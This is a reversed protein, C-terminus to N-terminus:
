PMTKNPNANLENVYEFITKQKGQYISNCSDIVRDAWYGNFLRDNAFHRAQCNTTVRKATDYQVPVITMLVPSTIGISKFNNFAVLPGVGRSEARQTCLTVEDTTDYQNEIMYSFESFTVESNGGRQTFIVLRKNNSRMWGLTPWQNAILDSPKLLVDYQAIAMTDKIEKITILRDAYNEIIITIVAQPNARMFEVVRYLEYKFSQYENTGKQVLAIFGPAEHSLCIKANKMGILSFPWGQNWDYTDIMLGRVGYSLQGLIPQDQQRAIKFFHPDTFANHTGVYRYDIYNVGDGPEVFHNINANAQQADESWYKDNLVLPLPFPLILPLPASIIMSQQIIVFFLIIISKNSMMIKKVM